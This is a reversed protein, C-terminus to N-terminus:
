SKLKQKLNSILSDAHKPPKSVPKIDLHKDFGHAEATVIAKAIFQCALEADALLFYTKNPVLELVTSDSKFTVKYRGDKQKEYWAGIEHGYKNRKDSGNLILDIQKKATAIFKFRAEDLLSEFTPKVAKHKVDTGGEFDTLEAFFDFGTNTTNFDTM